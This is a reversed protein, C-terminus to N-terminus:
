TNDVDSWEDNGQDGDWDILFDYTDAYENIDQALDEASALEMAIAAEEKSIRENKMHRGLAQDWIDGDPMGPNVTALRDTMKKM